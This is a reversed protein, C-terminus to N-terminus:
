IMRKESKEGTAIATSNAKEVIRRRSSQDYWKSKKEVERALLDLKGKLKQLDTKVFRDRLMLDFSRSFPDEM